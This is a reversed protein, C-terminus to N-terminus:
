VVQTFSKLNTQIAVSFVKDDGFDTTVAVHDGRWHLVGFVTINVTRSFEKLLVGTGHYTRGKKSVARYLFM